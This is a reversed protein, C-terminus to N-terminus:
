IFNTLEDDLRKADDSDLAAAGPLQTGAARRSRERWKPLTLALLGLGGLFVAPPLIYITLNFGSAAPRGLVEPGYQAVMASKIQSLSLGRAILGRLTAKESLAQPSTVQNLPEHCSVCMFQNVVSYYSQYSSQHASASAAVAGTLALALATAVVARRVSM